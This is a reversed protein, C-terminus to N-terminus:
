QTSTVIVEVRRNRARGEETQNSARPALYGVGEASVREAAVGLRILRDRVSAARAKSINTNVALSGSADTHGVLAITMAPNTRLFDALDVLSPFDGHGLNASGTDFTLDDLAVHGQSVLEEALNTTLAAESEPDPEIEPATPAVPTAPVAADGGVAILQVFGNESSRSVLLGLAEPGDPGTKEAALFRFDGLDVHMDPEPLVETAFRFDFGGCADTQCEWLINYGQATLQERLPALIQLTTVRPAAIRWASRSLPGEVERVPLAGNAWPGTPLAYSSLPESRYFTQTAPAQFELTVALADMPLFPVLGTLAVACLRFPTM